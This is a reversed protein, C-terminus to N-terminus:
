GRAADWRRWAVPTLLAHVVTQVCLLAMGTRLGDSAGGAIGAVIESVALTAFVGALLTHGLITLPWRHLVYGGVCFTVGVLILAAWQDIPLVSKALELGPQRQPAILCDTGLWLAALLAGTALVLVSRAGLPAYPLRWRLM